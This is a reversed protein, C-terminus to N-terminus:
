NLQEGKEFGIVIEPCHTNKFHCLIIRSACNKRYPGGPHDVALIHQDNDGSQWFYMCFIVM